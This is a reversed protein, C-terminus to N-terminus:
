LKMLVGFLLHSTIHAFRLTEPPCPFFRSTEQFVPMGPCTVWVSVWRRGADVTWAVFTVSAAARCGRGPSM